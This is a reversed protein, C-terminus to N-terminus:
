SMLLDAFRRLRWVSLQFFYLSMQFASRMVRSSLNLALAGGVGAKSSFNALNWFTHEAKHIFKGSTSTIAFGAM